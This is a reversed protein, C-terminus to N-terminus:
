GGGAAEADPAEWSRQQMVRVLEEPAIHRLYRDTTALSSHGLQAQIMNVPVGERALEAAHTHRLGHPHVRKDIGARRALRPLAQRVYQDAIAKGALTCFLPASRKIGRERRVQLWREILAASAPDIGVTRQRDGKGHMVCITGQALDVDKVGLALAEALRLGARYLIVVLARNRIGTPARGSSAHILARVEAETLIEPPLKRGANWPKAGGVAKLHRPKRKETM